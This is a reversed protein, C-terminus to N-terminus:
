VEELIAAYVDVDPVTGHSSKTLCYRFKQCCNKKLAEAHESLFSDVRQFCRQLGPLLAVSEMYSVDCLVLEWDQLLDKEEVTLFGYHRVFFNKAQM